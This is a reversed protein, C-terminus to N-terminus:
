AFVKKASSWLSKLPGKSKSGEREKERGTEGLRGRGEPYTTGREGTRDQEEEPAAKTRMQILTSMAAHLRDKQAAPTPLAISDHQVINISFIAPSSTSRIEHVIAFCSQLIAFVARSILSFVRFRVLSHIVRSIGLARKLFFTDRRLLLLRTAVSIIPCRIRDKSYHASAIAGTISTAQRRM